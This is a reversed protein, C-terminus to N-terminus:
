YQLMPALPVVYGNNPIFATAVVVNTFLLIRISFLSIWSKMPDPEAPIETLPPVLLEPSLKLIEPLLKYLDGILTKRLSPTPTVGMDKRALPVLPVEVFSVM